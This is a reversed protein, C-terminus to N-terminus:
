AGTPGWLMTAVAATSRTKALTAPDIMFTGSQSEHECSSPKVGAITAVIKGDSTWGLANSFRAAPTPGSSPVAAGGAVYRPRGGATPMVVAWGPGCGPAFFLLTWRADPSLWAFEPYLGPAVM